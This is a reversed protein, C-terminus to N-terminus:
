LVQGHKDDRQAAGDVHLLEALGAPLDSSGEPTTKLSNVTSPEYTLHQNHRHVDTM